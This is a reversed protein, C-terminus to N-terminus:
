SVSRTHVCHLEILAVNRRSDFVIQKTARSEEVGEEEEEEGSDGESDTGVPLSGCSCVVFSMIPQTLLYETVSTFSAEGQAVNSM